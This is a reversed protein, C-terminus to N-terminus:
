AATAEDDGVAGGECCCREESEAEAGANLREAWAEEEDGSELEADANVGEAEGKVGVAATNM